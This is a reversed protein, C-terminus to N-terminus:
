EFADQVNGDSEEQGAADEIEKINIEQCGTTERGCGRLCMVFLMITFGIVISRM